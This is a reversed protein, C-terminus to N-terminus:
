MGDCDRSCRCKRIIDVDKTYKTGDNCIMAVRKKHYRKPQCCDKGCKGDCTFQKIRYRSRCGYDFVFARQRDRRCTPPENCYKGSWGRKCRCRYGGSRRRPRCRGNECKNASCANSDKNCFKGSWGKKCRCRYGGNHQRARCQGNECRHEACADNERTSMVIDESREDVLIKVVNMELLKVVNMELRKVVDDRIDESVVNM